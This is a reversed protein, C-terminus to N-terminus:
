KEEKKSVDKFLNTQKETMSKYAFFAVPLFTLLLLTDFNM